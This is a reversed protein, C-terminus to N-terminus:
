IYNSMDLTYLWQTVDSVQCVHTQALELFHHHVPFGPASCDVPVCFTPCLQAVSSFTYLMIIQNIYMMFHNDCYIYHVDMMECLYLTLSLFIHERRTVLVRQISVRSLKPLQYRVPLGPTSRNMPDCLTPCSQAVSSFQVHTHTNTVWDCGVRQLGMSQQWWAGKDM